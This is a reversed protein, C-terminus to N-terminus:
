VINAGDTRAGIASSARALEAGFLVIQASYYVWILLVVVSAAAGYTSTLAQTGVYWSIALTGVQFLVATVAAAPWVARWEVPADPFLRFLLAFLITLVASSLVFAIAQWLLQSTGAVAWDVVANLATSVVISAALLIGLALIGALSMLYSRIVSWWTAHKARDVEWITNLADKLQVVVGLAGVFLLIVGTIAAFMGSKESSAGSLLTEVAQSGTEGMQERLNAMLARRATEQGLFLGAISTLILLLPGVSFVSYYALAAGLRACRHRLWGEYAMSWVQWNM